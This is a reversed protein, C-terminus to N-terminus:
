SDVRVSQDNLSASWSSSLDNEECQWTARDVAYGTRPLLEATVLMMGYFVLILSLVHALSARYRWASVAAWGGGLVVASVAALYGALPFGCTRPYPWWAMMTGLALGLALRAWPGLLDEMPPPVTHISTGSSGVHRPAVRPSPAEGQLGPLQALLRDVVGAMPDPEPSPSPKPM